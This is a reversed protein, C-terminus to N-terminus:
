PRSAAIPNGAYYLDTVQVVTGTHLAQVVNGGGIYLADHGFGNYYIIDGPQIQDLSVHRTASYQSPVYHPLSVGAARWAYMVLGSCDFSDPGAAGWVYPKGQQGLAVSVATGAGPSSPQPLGSTTVIKTPTAAAARRQAAAANAAAQREAEAAAVLQNLESDVQNKLSQQQAVAGAAASKKSSLDDAKAQAANQAVNLQAIQDQVDQETANLQDIMQQRNGAAASLYGQAQGTPDATGLDDATPDDAGRVYADVAYGRIQTKHTQLEAEASAVKAQADAVQQHLQDLEIQAGNAAEAYQEVVANLSDIKAAIAAAQAKKDSIADAHARTPLGSVILAAVVAALLVIARPRTGARRTLVM